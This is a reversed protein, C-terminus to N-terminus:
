YDDDDPLNEFKGLQQWERVPNKFGQFAGNKEMRDFLVFLKEAELEKEKNSLNSSNTPKSKNFISDLSMKSFEHEINKNNKDLYKPNPSQVSKTDIEPLVELNNAIIFEQANRYGVLDLFQSMREDYKTEPNWSLNYICELILSKINTLNALNAINANDTLTNNNSTLILSILKNYIAIDNNMPLLKEVFISIFCLLYSADQSESENYQLILRNSIYNIIVLLNMVDALDFETYTKDSYRELQFEILTMLNHIFSRNTDNNKICFKNVNQEHTFLGLISNLLYKMLLLENDLLLRIEKVGEIMNNTVLICSYLIGENILRNEKNLQEGYAHKHQFTYLGKLIEAFAKQYNDDKKYDDFVSFSFEFGLILLSYMSAITKTDMHNLENCLILFILRYVPVLRGFDYKVPADSESLTNNIFRDLFEITRISYNPIFHANRLEVNILLINSITAILDITDSDNIQNESLLVEVIEDLLSKSVQLCFRPDKGKLRLDKINLGSM